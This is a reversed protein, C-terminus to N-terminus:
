MNKACRRHPPEHLMRLLRATGACVAGATSVFHLGVEPMARRFTYIALFSYILRAHGVSPTLLRTFILSAFGLRYLTHQNVFFVTHWCAHTGQRFGHIYFRIGMVFSVAFRSTHTAASGRRSLPQPARSRPRKHIVLSSYERGQEAFIMLAASTVM